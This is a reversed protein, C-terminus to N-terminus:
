KGAGSVKRKEKCSRRVDGKRSEGSKTEIFDGIFKDNGVAKSRDKERWIMRVAMCCFLGSCDNM